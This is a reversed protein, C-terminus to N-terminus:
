TVPAAQGSPPPSAGAGGLDRLCANFRGPMATDRIAEGKPDLKAITLDVEFNSALEGAKLAYYATVHSASVMASLMAATPQDARFVFARSGTAVDRTGALSSANTRHGDQLGAEAPAIQVSPQGNVSPRVVSLRMVLGTKTDAKAVAVTGVLLTMGGNLTARDRHAVNFTLNCAQLKGGIFSPSFQAQVTRNDPDDARAPAALLSLGVTAAATWASTQRWFRRNRDM